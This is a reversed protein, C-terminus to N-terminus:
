NVLAKNREELKAVLGTVGGSRIENAFSTRYNAALSIGEIKVDSVLWARGPKHLIYDITVLSGSATTVKSPVLVRLNDKSRRAEGYEIPKGSYNLLASGYTRILLESFAKVVSRKDASSARRWHKGMASQTLANFDFHPKVLDAVADHIREPHAKLEDKRSEFRKLVKQAADDVVKIVDEDAAMTVPAIFLLSVLFSWILSKKM